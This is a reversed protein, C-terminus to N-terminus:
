ACKTYNCYKCLYAGEKLILRSGCEPCIGSINRKLVYYKATNIKRNRNFFYSIRLRGILGSIKITESLVIQQKQFKNVAEEDLKDKVGAIIEKKLFDPSNKPLLGLIKKLIMSSDHEREPTVNLLNKQLPYDRTAGKESKHITYVSSRFGKLFVTSESSSFTRWNHNVDNTPQNRVRRIYRFLAIIASCVTIIGVLIEFFNAWDTM